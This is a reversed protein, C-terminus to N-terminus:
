GRCCSCCTTAVCGLLSEAAKPPSEAPAVLPQVCGRPPPPPPPIGPTVKTLPVSQLLKDSLTRVLPSDALLSPLTTLREAPPPPPPPCRPAPLASVKVAPLRSPTPLRRAHDFCGVPKPTLRAKV